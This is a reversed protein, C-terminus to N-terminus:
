RPSRANIKEAFRAPRAAGANAEATPDVAPAPPAALPLPAEKTRATGRQPKPRIGRSYREQHYTARVHHEPAALGEAAFAATIQGWSIGRKRADTIADFGARVKLRLPSLPHARGAADLAALRAAFAADAASDAM